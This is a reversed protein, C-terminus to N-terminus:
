KNKNESDSQTTKDMLSWTANKSTAFILQNETLVYDLSLNGSNEEDLNIYRLPTNKYTSDLFTKNAKVPMTDPFLFGLDTILTKEKNKMLILAKQKNKLDIALGIRMNNGDPCIFLSFKEGLTDTVPAIKIGALISFIPFAVPNNNSDTIIFEIPSTTGEAKIESATKEILQKITESSSNEVNVSLYNPNELSFKEEVPEVIVPKEVPVNSVPAQIPVPTQNERTLWFYYGGAALSLFAVFLLSIILIKKWRLSQHIAPAPELIPKEQTYKPQSSYSPPNKPETMAQNASPASNLFPSYSRTPNSTKEVSSPQIYRREQSTLKEELQTEDTEKTSINVGSAFDLDDQMTHIVVDSKEIASASSIRMKSDIDSENKNYDFM